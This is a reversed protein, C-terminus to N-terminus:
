FLFIRRKVCKLVFCQFPKWFFFFFFFVTSFLYESFAIYYENINELM